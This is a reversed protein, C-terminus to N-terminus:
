INTAKELESITQSNADIKSDLASLAQNVSSLDISFNVNPNQFYSASM